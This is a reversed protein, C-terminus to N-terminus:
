NLSEIEKKYDRFARFIGSAIYVQNLKDNLEKEEKANSLYGVEVLVSPM